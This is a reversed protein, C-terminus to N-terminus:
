RSIIICQRNWFQWQRFQDGFFDYIINSLTKVNYHVISFVTKSFHKVQPWSFRSLKM